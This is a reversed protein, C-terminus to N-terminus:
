EELLPEIDTEGQVLYVIRECINTCHDAAREFFHAVWQLYVMRQQLGPDQQLITTSPPSELFTMADRRVAYGRRDIEKDKAWLRRAAETDREAFAKMTDQLLKHVEQGLALLARLVSAETVEYGDTKLDATHHTDTTNSSGQLGEYGLPRMRLVMLAIQEVEDGIRELDISVPVVSTVYRLDHGGLPQQMRLIRSAYQEIALHLEDIARDAEVVRQAQEQAATQLVELDQALSHAVLSGLSLVRTDLERLQQNLMTRTM